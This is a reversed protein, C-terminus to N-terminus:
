FFKFWRSIGFYYSGVMSPPLGSLSFAQNLKLYGATFYLKRVQYQLLFNLTENNNNSGVGSSLTASRSKSYSASLTLGHIPNAGIAASYARGNFVVIATPNLVPIPIPTAVLGTSTLLANGDSKSYTGTFTIKPLVLSTSYGQSSNASGPVDTLLSRSGSASASWYTKRSLKRGISGSYNLGSSTYAALLTQTDQSYNVSGSLDWRRISHSYSISGNLGTMTQGTTNLSTRTVGVVGTFEGGLLRDSYTASGTYSNSVFSRGLFSQQQRDAYGRLYLKLAPVDYSVFSNLDLNNSSTSQNLEDPLLVGSSALSTYITADLNDVYYAGTGFALHKVPAFSVSSSLSDVTTKYNTAGSDFALSSRSAGAAFSGHLPLNHGVGFSFSNSGSDAAQSQLNDLFDPTLSNLGTHQYGGSLNFGEINYTSSANFTNSHVTGEGDAGYVSYANNSRSYGINLTPANDFRLGWNIGLNDSNGHTTYDALGPIEYNGSNNYVRSYVVSGPFHSGAFISTSASIGTSDSISQFNSNVRSQNYFPQIDFSLFNPSFYAGSLNATGGATFSHDSGYYNSYDANYGASITGDLNLSTEGAQIQASAAVAFALVIVTIISVWKM